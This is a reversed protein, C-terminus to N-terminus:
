WELGPSPENAYEVLWSRCSMCRQAHRCSTRLKCHLTAFHLTGRQLYEASCSSMVDVASMAIYGVAHVWSFMIIHRGCAASLATYGLGWRMYEASYPSMADVASLATHTYRLAHVWSLMIVHGGCSLTGHVGSCTSLQPHHCSTWLQSHRTGWQMYEASSSSMVDVASLATYRLAHVWSLMIVHRGCSITCYVGSCISLQAHRYSTWLQCHLTGWRMTILHHCCGFWCAHFYAWYLVADVFGIIFYEWSHM